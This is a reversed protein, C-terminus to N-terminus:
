LEFHGTIGGVVFTIIVVLEGVVGNFVVREDIWIANQDVAVNTQGMLFNRSREVIHPKAELLSIKQRVQVTIELAVSCLRPNYKATDVM